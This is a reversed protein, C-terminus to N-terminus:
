IESQRVQRPRDTLQSVSSNYGQEGQRYPTTDISKYTPAPDSGYLGSPPTPNSSHTDRTRRDSNSTNSDIRPTLRESPRSLQGDSPPLTQRDTRREAEYGRSQSPPLLRQVRNDHGDTRDRDSTVHSRTAYPHEDRRRGLAEYQKDGRRDSYPPQSKEVPSRPQYMNNRTEPEQGPKHRIEQEELPQQSYDYTSHRIELKGPDLEQVPVTPYPRRGDSNHNSQYQHDPQSPRSGRVGADGQNAPPKFETPHPDPNGPRPPHALQEEHMPTDVAGPARRRSRPYTRQEERFAHNDTGGNPVSITSAGNTTAQGEAGRVLKPGRRRRTSLRYLRYMARGVPDKDRRWRGYVYVFIVFLIVLGILIGLVIGAVAGSSMQGASSRFATDCQDCCYVSPYHGCCAVDCTTDVYSPVPASLNYYLRFM